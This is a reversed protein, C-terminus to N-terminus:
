QGRRNPRLAPRELCAVRRDGPERRDGGAVGVNVSGKSDLSDTGGNRSRHLVGLFRRADACPLGVERKPGARGRGSREGELPLPRLSGPVPPVSAQTPSKEFGSWPVGPPAIAYLWRVLQPAAPEAQSEAGLVHVTPASRQRTREVGSPDFANHACDGEGEAVACPRWRQHSTSCGMIQPKVIVVPKVLKRRLHRQKTCDM